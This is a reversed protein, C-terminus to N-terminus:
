PAMNLCGCYFLISNRFGDFSRYGRANSKVTQIKSNLGEAVANSIGHKFYTLINPLHAKIMRAKEKIPGLRSRIAWSYWREFYGKAWGASKYDWFHRLSEKIAWARSVKLESRRLIDFNEQYDEHLNEANVLWHFKTGKLRSDGEEVLAKNEKRRIKDVAENLHQSIHFRDHVIDAQPLKDSVANAYAKLMDLAVATVQAQQTLTLAQSILAKCATETRTEVVDLM